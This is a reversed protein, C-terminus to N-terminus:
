TRHPSGQLPGSALWSRPRRTPRKVGDGVARWRTGLGAGLDCFAAHRHPARGLPLVLTLSAGSPVVTSTRVILPVVSSGPDADPPDGTPPTPEGPLACIASRVKRTSRHHNCGRMVKVRSTM